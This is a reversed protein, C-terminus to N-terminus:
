KSYKNLLRYAVNNAMNKLTANDTGERDQTVSKEIAGTEIEIIRASMYLNDEDNLVSVAIVFDVGYKDAIKRIQSDSVDGAVQFDHEKNVANIFVSNREFAKYGKTSSIRSTFANNVIQEQIKSLNGEVYVAISKTTQANM